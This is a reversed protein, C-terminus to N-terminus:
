KIYGRHRKIRDLGEMILEKNDVKHRALFNKRNKYQAAHKNRFLNGDASNLRDILGPNVHENPVIMVELVNTAIFNEISLVKYTCTSNDFVVTTLNKFTKLM